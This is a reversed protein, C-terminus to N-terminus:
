LFSDDRMKWPASIRAQENTKTTTDRLTMVNKTKVTYVEVPPSSVGLFTNTVRERKSYRRIPQVKNSKVPIRERDSPFTARALIWTLERTRCCSYMRFVEHAVTISTTLM